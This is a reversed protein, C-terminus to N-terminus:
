PWWRTIYKSALEKVVRRDESWGRRAQVGAVLARERDPHRRHRHDGAHQRHREFEAAGIGTEKRRHRSGHNAAQDRGRYQTQHDHRHDVLDDVIGFAPQAALQTSAPGGVAFEGAAVSRLTRFSAGLDSSCVDSSWASFRLEYATKQM